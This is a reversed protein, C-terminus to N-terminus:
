PWSQPSALGFSNAALLVDTLDVLGDANADTYHGNTNPRDTITGFQAAVLLVDTLDVVSDDNVLGARLTPSSLLIDETSVVLDTLRMVVYGTAEAVVTYTGPAVLSLIFSGDDGVAIETTTGSSQNTLIITPTTTAFLSTSSIGQLSISGAITAGEIVTLNNQVIPTTTAAGAFLTTSTVGGVSIAIPLSGSVLRTATVSM